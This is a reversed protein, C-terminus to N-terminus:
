VIRRRIEEFGGLCASAGGIQSIREPEDDTALRTDGVHHPFSWGELGTKRHARLDNRHITKGKVPVPELGTNLVALGIALRDFEDDFVAVAIASNPDIVM